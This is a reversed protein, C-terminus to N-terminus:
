SSPTSIFCFSYLKLKIYKYSLLFYLNIREGHNQGTPNEMYFILHETTRENENKKNTIKSRESNIESRSGKAEYRNM